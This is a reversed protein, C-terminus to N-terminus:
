MSKLMKPRGAVNIRKAADFMAQKDQMIKVLSLNGLDTRLNDILKTKEGEHESLLSNYDFEIEYNMEGESM